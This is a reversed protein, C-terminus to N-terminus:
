EDHEQRFGNPVPGSWHHEMLIAVEHARMETKEEESDHDYGLVHLIGHVLLLAIEDSFTGAHTDCQKLAIAPCIVVDGLLTPVDDTDFAPRSPGRSPTGPGQAENYEATDLPFALVDTPGVKGMHESNLESITTEDVFFVSLECAGRVGEHQLAALALLRCQELPISIESQEDSCFVEPIGDGGSRRAAQVRPRSETMKRLGDLQNVSIRPM